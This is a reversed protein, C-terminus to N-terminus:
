SFLKHDNYKNGHFIIFYEKYQVTSINVPLDM